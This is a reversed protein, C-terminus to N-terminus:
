LIPSDAHIQRWVHAPSKCFGFQGTADHCWVYQHGIQTIYSGLTDNM